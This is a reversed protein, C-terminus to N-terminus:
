GRFRGSQRVIVQTGGQSGGERAAGQGQGGRGQQRGGQGGQAGGRRSGQGGEPGSGHACASGQHSRDEEGRRRRPRGHVRDKGRCGRCSGRRRGPRRCGCRRRRGFGGM